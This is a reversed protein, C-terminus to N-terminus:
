IPWPQPTRADAALLGAIHGDRRENGPGIRGLGLRLMGEYRFGLKQAIRMSAPNDTVARWEVRQLRMPGFAFDLVAHAAETLYGRGRAPAAVWYGIEAAGDRVGHLAIMGVLAGQTRIAWTCEDGTAWWAAVLHVFAEADTRQYPAPVTTFRQIDPDQCAAYIADIDAETPASLVLRETALEVPDAM